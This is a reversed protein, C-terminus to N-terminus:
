RSPRRATSDAGAHRRRRRRCPDLRRRPEERATLEARPKLRRREQRGRPGLHLREAPVDAVDDQDRAVGVHVVRAEPHRQHPPQQLGLAKPDADERLRRPVAGVRKALQAARREVEAHGAPVHVGHDVPVGGLSLQARVVRVRRAALAALPGIAADDDVRVAAALGELADGDDDAADLGAQPADGVEVVPRLLHPARDQEVRLGVQEQVAVGLARQDLQRPAHREALGDAGDVIEAAGDDGAGLRGRAEAADVGGVEVRGAGDLGRGVGVLGLDGGRALAVGAAGARGGAWVAGGGGCGGRGRSRTWSRGRAVRSRVNM